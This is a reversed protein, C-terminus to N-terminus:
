PARRFQSSPVKMSSRYKAVTRRAVQLGHSQKLTSAIRGDDLPSAPDESDILDRILSKIRESSVEEGSESKAKMKSCFLDKLAITGCPTDAYKNMVVRCVTSEHLDIMDALQRFTLPKLCSFGNLFAERQIDILKETVLRLTSQRKNLARILESARRMKETVFERTKEDIDSRKLLNQYFGNVMLRPVGENLLRVTLKGEDEEIIIEPTVKCAEESSFSLGPKPNLRTIRGILETIKEKSIGLRASIRDYNHLGIDPLCDTILTLLMPDTEGSLKLQISLCEALSRCCVGPPDFTQILKIVSEVKEVSVEATSAIEQASATLYGNADINGIIEHGIIIEEDNGFIGLQKLLVDYLSIKKTIYAEPEPSKRASEGSDMRNVSYNHVPSPRHFEFGASAPNEELLPNEVLENNILQSLDIMPLTLLKLSQRMQPALIKRMEM